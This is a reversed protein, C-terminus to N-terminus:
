LPTRSLHSQFDKLYLVQELHLMRLVDVTALASTDNSTPLYAELPMEDEVAAMYAYLCRSFNSYKDIM